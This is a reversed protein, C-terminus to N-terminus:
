APVLYMAPYAVVMGSGYLSSTGPYYFSALGWTDAYQTDDWLIVKNAVIKSYYQGTKFGKWNDTSPYNASIKYGSKSGWSQYEFTIGIYTKNGSALALEGNNKEHVADNVFYGNFSTQISMDEETVGAELLEEKLTRGRLRAGFRKADDNSLITFRKGDSSNTSVATTIYKDPNRFMDTVDGSLKVYSNMLYCKAHGNEDTVGKEVDPFYLADFLERNAGNANFGKFFNLMSIAKKLQAEINLAYLQKETLSTTSFNDTISCLEVYRNIPNSSTDVVSASIIRYNEELIAVKDSIYDSNSARMGSIKSAIADLSENMEKENDFEIDSYNDLLKNIKNLNKDSVAYEIDAMATTMLVMRQNFSELVTEKQTKEIEYLMDTQQQITSDIENLKDNLTNIQGSIEELKAMVEAHRSKDTPFVGFWGLVQYGVSGVTGIGSLTGTITGFTTNGFGGVINKITTVDNTSLDRGLSQASYSRAAEVPEANKKNNRDILSGEALIIKGIYYYDKTDAFRDNDGTEAEDDDNTNYPVNIVLKYADKSDEKPELSVIKANEFDNAFSIKDKNFDDAFDAARAYLIITLDYSDDKDIASDFFPYFFGGEVVADEDMQTVLISKQVPDEEGFFEGPLELTGYNGVNIKQTDFSPTGAITLTVSNKDNSIGSVKMGEFSDKLTIDNATITGDIENNESTLKIEQAIEADKGPMNIFEIDAALAVGSLPRSVEDATAAEDQTAKDESPQGCATLVGSFMIATLMLCILRTFFSNKSKM